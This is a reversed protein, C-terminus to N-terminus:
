LSKNVWRVKRGLRMFNKEYFVYICYSVGFTVCMKVVLSFVPPMPELSLRSTMFHLGKNVLTYVLPHILYICYSCDGLLKLPTALIAPLDLSIKYFGICIMFCSLTLVLRTLGTVLNIRDGEVPFLIFLALGGIILFASLANHVNVTRLSYGIIMGGLFLFFQNLPNVYHVWQSEFSKDPDMRVFPFYLYLLFAFVCAIVFVPRNYRLLFMYPLFLVYFVLENGISWTGTAIYHNWDVFGFLGTFNLFLSEVGPLTGRLALTFLIVLWLLPFIRFIRRVIFDATSASPDQRVDYVYCLTLGSLIYFISVGYVGVRGLFSDASYRGYMWSFYHFFMISLASLGRLYDLNHLRGSAISSTLATRGSVNQVIM